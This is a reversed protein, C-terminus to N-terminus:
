GMWVNGCHRCRMDKQFGFWNRLTRSLSFGRRSFDPSKVEVDKSHCRPCYLSGETIVDEDSVADEGVVDASELVLRAADYDERRVMLKVGGLANTYLNALESDFIEAQIGSLALRSKAVEALILSPYNGLQAFAEESM